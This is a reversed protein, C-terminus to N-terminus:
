PALPPDEDPKQQILYRFFAYQRNILSKERTALVSRKIVALAYYKWTSGDVRELFLISQADDSGILKVPGMRIASVNYSKFVLHDASADLRTIAYINSGWSRSDNQAFYLTLGSLLEHSTFDARVSGVHPSTLAFAESVLERWAADTVSWYRLGQTQSIAGLRTAIDSATGSYAFTAALAITLTAPAQLAIHCNEPLADLDRWSTVTPLDGTNAYPPNPEGTDTPCVPLSASRANQVTLISAVLVVMFVFGTM